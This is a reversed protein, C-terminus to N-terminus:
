KESPKVSGIMAMPTRVLHTVVFVRGLAAYTAPLHGSFCCTPARRLVCAETLPIDCWPRACHQKGEFVLEINVGEM